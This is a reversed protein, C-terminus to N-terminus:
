RKDRERLFRKATQTNWPSVFQYSATLSGTEDYKYVSLIGKAERSSFSVEDSAYLLESLGECEQTQHERSDKIPGPIRASLFDLLQKKTLPNELLTSDLRTIHFEYDSVLSQIIIDTIGQAKEHIFIERQSELELLGEVISSFQGLSESIQASNEITIIQEGIHARPSSYLICGGQSNFSGYASAVTLLQLSLLLFKM